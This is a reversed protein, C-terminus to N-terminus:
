KSEIQDLQKQLTPNNNLIDLEIKDIPDEIGSIPSEKRRKSKSLPLSTSEIRSTWNKLKCSKYRGMNGQKNPILM